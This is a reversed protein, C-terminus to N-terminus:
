PLLGTFYPLSEEETYLEKRLPLSFSLAIADERNLYSESYSFTGDAELTGVLRLNRPMSTGIPAACERYVDLGM